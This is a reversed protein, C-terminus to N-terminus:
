HSFINATNRYGNKNQYWDPYLTGSSQAWEAMHLYAKLVDTKEYPYDFREYINVAWPLNGSSRYYKNLAPNSADNLTNFYSTTALATPPYDILHVEKNRIENVILFPNFASINLDNLTYLDPTYTFHLVITDPTVYNAGASTNVGIGGGGAYPICRFANDFVIATPKNQGSELGNAHLSIYTDYIKFGTVNIASQPIANGALQFGFGNKYSAGTARVIFTAFTEVLKNNRNTVNMFQYDVVLDNFDYDGRSPWLDEFALSGFGNSPYYNNFARTPDNPYDDYGNLVGDGDTDAGYGTDLSFSGILTGNLATSVTNHIATGSGENFQYFALLGSEAGSWGLNEGQVVESVSLGRTWFAVDDIYGKFFKQGGNDSGISVTRHTYNMTGTTNASSKLVGDVYLKLARGDYTAAVYYWRNLVPQSGVYVNTATLNSMALSAMWGKYLDQGLGFGDWDGKEIIKVSQQKECKVWAELTFANNLVINSSNQIAVWDTTGNLHLSYNIFTPTKKKGFTYIDVTNGNITFLQSNVNLQTIYTPIPVIIKLNSSSDNYFGKHFLMGEDPSSIIIMDSVSQHITVTVDKGTQWSFTNSVTLDTMSNIQKVEPAAVPIDKKCAVLLFILVVIGIINKMYDFKIM